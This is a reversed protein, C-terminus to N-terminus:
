FHKNVENKNDLRNQINGKFKIIEDTSLKEKRINPHCRYYMSLLTLKFEEIIQHSIYLLEDM